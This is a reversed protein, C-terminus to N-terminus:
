FWGKSDELIAKNITNYAKIIKKILATGDDFYDNPDINKVDKTFKNEAFATYTITAKNIAEIEDSISPSLKNSYKSILEKMQVNLESNLNKIENSLVYIKELESKNASKKAALGSGFGRMQGVYETMPLMTEMMIASASQGLPNLNKSARKSVTQALMLTQGIQETYQSFTEAPKQKFAKNNLKILAQSIATARSNIIPDAALPLSEMTGIAKKMDSRNNYVLLMAVINGNLYSNTLGRTKQTAIVLDKLSGIYVSNDAQSSNSFLSKAELSFLM